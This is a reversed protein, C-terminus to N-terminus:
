VPLLGVYRLLDSSGNAFQDLFRCVREKLSLWDESLRHMHIVEQRLKRGLKEIPNLWPAYVPLPVLVIGLRQAAAVQDPHFHVNHWNDQIVYIVEAQPCATRIDQLFAVLQGVDIHARQRYLVQGTVANLATILRGRTNYGPTLNATPQQRGAPAYSSALTPWRYFSFEDLYFTVVQEPRSRAAEVCAQAQDRKQVYHPDPSHVHPQGRKYHIRLARLIRWLGSLSYRQVWECVQQIAALTWRSLFVGYNQPAQHVMERLGHEKEPPFIGGGGLTSTCVGSVM